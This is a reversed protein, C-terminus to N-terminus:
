AVTPVVLDPDTIATLSVFWVGDPFHVSAETAARLALRTTGVGGPGTLTLLRVDPCVLAAVIAAVERERGIFSTLPTPLHPAPLQREPFLATPARDTSNREPLSPGAM